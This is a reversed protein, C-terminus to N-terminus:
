RAAHRRAGGLFARRRARPARRAARRDGRDFGDPAGATRAAPADDSWRALALAAAGVVVVPFGNPRTLLAAAFTLLSGAEVVAWPLHRRLAIVAFGLLAFHAFWVDKWVIAPYILLIPGALFLALIPVGAFRPRQAGPLLAMLGALLMLSSSVVLLRPGGLADLVGFLVTAFVPNYSEIVGSRSEHLQILSDVSLHGPGNLWLMAAFWVVLVDFAAIRWWRLRLSDTM